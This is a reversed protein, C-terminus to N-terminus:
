SLSDSNGPDQTCYPRGSCDSASAAKWGTSYGSPTVVATPGGLLLPLHTRRHHWASQIEQKVSRSRMSATSCMLMLLESREIGKVIERGCNGGALIRDQDRWITMSASELQRVVPAVREPDYSAYSIFSDAVTAYTKAAM